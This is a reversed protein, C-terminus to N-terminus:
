TGIYITSIQVTADTSFSTVNTIRCKEMDHMDHMKCQTNISVNAM